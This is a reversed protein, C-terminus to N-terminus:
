LRPEKGNMSKWACFASRPASLLVKDGLALLSRSCMGASRSAPPSAVASQPVRWQSGPESPRAGSGLASRVCQLRRQAPPAPCFGPNDCHSAPHSGHQACARVCQCVCVYLFLSLRVSVYVTVCIYVSACLYVCVCVYLSLCMCVCLYVCLCVFVSVCFCLYM